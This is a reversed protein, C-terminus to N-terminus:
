FQATTAWGNLRILHIALLLRSHSMTGSYIAKDYDNMVIKDVKNELLLSLAVGAGGAFPEIYTIHNMGAKQMSLYILPKLVNKGGPYRLPSYNLM